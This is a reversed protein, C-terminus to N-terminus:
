KKMGRLPFSLGFHNFGKGACFNQGIIESFFNDFYLRNGKIMSICM